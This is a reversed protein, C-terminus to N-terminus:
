KLQGLVWLQHDQMTPAPRNFELGPRPIQSHLLLLPNASQVPQGQKKWDCMSGLKRLDDSQVTGPRWDGVHGDSSM